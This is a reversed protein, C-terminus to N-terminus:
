IYMKKRYASLNKKQKVCMKDSCKVVAESLKKLNSSDYFKASCDYFAKSSKQPCKINQEKEFSKRLSKNNRKKILNSCKRTRCKDFDKLLRSEKKDM